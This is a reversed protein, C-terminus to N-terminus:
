KFEKKCEYYLTTKYDEEFELITDQSNINPVKSLKNDQFCSISVFAEKNRHQIIGNKDFEEITYRLQNESKKRRKTKITNKISSITKLEIFCFVKDDFIVCDCRSNNNEFELCDDIQLFNINKQTNNIVEFQGFDYKIYAPQNAIDDQIYFQKHNITNTCTSINNIM